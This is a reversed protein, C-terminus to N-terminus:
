IQGTDFRVTVVKNVGPGNALPSTSEIAEGGAILFRNRVLPTVLELQGRIAFAPV